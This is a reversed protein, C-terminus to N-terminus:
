AFISTIGCIAAKLGGNSGRPGFLRAEMQDRYKETDLSQSMSLGDASISGSQPLMLDDVISLAAAKYIVDILDPWDAKADKLGCTYKIRVMFPVLRGGGLVSLVWVSLPAASFAGAPVMQIVGYKKDIRLWDAPVTYVTNMTSPYAWKVEEVSIIPMQRTDIRGWKEGQFFEPDFDYGPEVIYPKGELDTVEQETPEDPFVVTPELKVGLKHSIDAEAAVLKRLLYADSWDADPALGAALSVLRDARFDDIDALTFLSM